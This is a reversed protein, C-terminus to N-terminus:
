FAKIQGIAIRVVVVVVVVVVVLVVVVFHFTFFRPRRSPRKLLFQRFKGTNKFIYTL